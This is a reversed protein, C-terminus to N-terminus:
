IIPLWEIESAGGNVKVYEGNIWLFMDTADIYLKDDEGVTPRPGFVIQDGGSPESTVQSWGDGPEYRWLAKTEKIWYLAPYPNAFARREAETDLTVVSTYDILNGDNNVFKIGRTDELFVLMGSTLTIGPLKSTDTYVVKFSAM